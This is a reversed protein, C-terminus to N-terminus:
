GIKHNFNFLLRHRKKLLLQRKSDKVECESSVAYIESDAHSSVAYLDTNAM